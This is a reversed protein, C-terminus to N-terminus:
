EANTISSHQSLKFKTFTFQLTKQGSKTWFSIDFHWFTIEKIPRVSVHTEFKKRQLLLNQLSCKQLSKSTHQWIPKLPRLFEHKSKIENFILNIAAICLLAFTSSYICSHNVGSEFSSYTSCYFNVNQRGPKVTNLPGCLIKPLINQKSYYHSRSTFLLSLM